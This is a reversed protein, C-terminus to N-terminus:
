IVGKLVKRYSENLERSFHLEDSKKSILDELNKAHQSAELLQGAWNNGFTEADCVAYQYLKKSLLGPVEYKKLDYNKPDFKM